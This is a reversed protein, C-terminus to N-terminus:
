WWGVQEDVDVVNQDDGVVCVHEVGDLVLDGGGELGPVKTWGGEEEADVDDSVAGGFGDLQGLGAMGSVQQGLKVHFLGLGEICMAHM